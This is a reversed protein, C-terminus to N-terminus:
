FFYLKLRVLFGLFLASWLAKWREAACMSTCGIRSIAASSSVLVVVHTVSVLLCVCVVYAACASDFVAKMLVESYCVNMRDNERWELHLYLTMVDNWWCTRGAAEPIGMHGWALKFMHGRWQVLTEKWDDTGQNGGFPSKSRTDKGCAWIM